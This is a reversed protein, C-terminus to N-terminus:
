VDKSHTEDQHSLCSTLLSADNTMVYCLLCCRAYNRDVAMISSTWDRQSRNHPWKSSWNNHCCTSYNGLFSHSPKDEVVKIRRAGVPIVAAEIYGKPSFSILPSVLTSIFRALSIECQHVPAYKQLRICIHTHVLDHTYKGPWDSCVM